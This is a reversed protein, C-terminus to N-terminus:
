FKRLNTVESKYGSDLPMYQHVQNEIAVTLCIKPLAYDDSFSDTDVGGCEYLRVVEKRIQEMLEPLMSDVKQKFFAKDM